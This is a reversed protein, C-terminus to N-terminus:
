EAAQGEAFGAILNLFPEAFDRVKAEGLEEVMGDARADAEDARKTAEEAQNHKRALASTAEQAQSEYYSMKLEMERFSM